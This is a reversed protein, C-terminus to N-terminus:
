VFNNIAKKCLRETLRHFNRVMEAMEELEEESVSFNKKYRADIYSKLILKYIHADRPTEKPFSHLFSQNLYQQKRRSSKLIM